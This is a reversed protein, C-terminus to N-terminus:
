RESVERIAALLSEPTPHQAIAHVLLGLKDALFNSTVPGIAAVNPIPLESLGQAQDRNFSLRFYTRLIPTVFDAASPAFYVIWWDKGSLRRWNGEFRGSGQTAYVRLEVFEVGADGLIKPVTDRNKDGTLYLLRGHPRSPDDVIFKALKEGTGSSEGRIDMVNMGFESLSLLGSKTGQGVVYFPIKSWLEIQPDQAVGCQLIERWADCSRKSTLLVGGVGEQQPGHSIISQLSDLNAFVTELVPISLANYGAASFVPEYKDKESSSSESSPGRLLLVNAM